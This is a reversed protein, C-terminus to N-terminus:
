DQISRTISAAATIAAGLLSAILIVNYYSSSEFYGAFGSGFLIGAAAGSFSDHAVKDLIELSWIGTKPIPEPNKIVVSSKEM